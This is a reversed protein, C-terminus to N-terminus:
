LIKTELNKPYRFEKDTTPPFTVAVHRPTVDRSPLLPLPILNLRSVQVHRTKLSTVDGVLKRAPRTKRKRVLNTFFKPKKMHPEISETEKLEFTSVLKFIFIIGVLKLWNRALHTPFITMKVSPGKSEATILKFKSRIKLAFMKESREFQRSAQISKWKWELWVNGDRFSSTIVHPGLWNLLEWCNILWWNWSFLLSLFFSLSLPLHWSHRLTALDPLIFGTLYCFLSLRSGTSLHVYFRFWVM